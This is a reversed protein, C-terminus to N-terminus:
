GSRLVNVSQPPDLEFVAGPLFGLRAYLSTSLPSPALRLHAMGAHGAWAILGDMLARGLGANRHERLVFVNGVYGWWGGSAKGAVPMRNYRLVNAMGVPIGEVEVIFFTRRPREAEWWEGFAAEFRRDGIPGGASEENWARRLSALASVDDDSAVRISVGAPSM